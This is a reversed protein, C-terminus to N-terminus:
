QRQTCENRPAERRGLLELVDVGPAVEIGPTYPEMTSRRHVVVNPDRRIAAARAEAVRVEARGAASCQEHEDLM